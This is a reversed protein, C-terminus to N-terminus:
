SYGQADPTVRIGAYFVSNAMTKDGTIRKGEVGLAPTRLFFAHHKVAAIGGVSGKVFQAERIMPVARYIHYDKISDWMVELPFSYFNPNDYNLERSKPKFPYTVYMQGGIKLIPEPYNIALIPDGKEDKYQHLPALHNKVADKFYYLCNQEMESNQWVTSVFWVKLYVPNPDIEKFLKQLADEEQALDNTWTHDYGTSMKIGNSKISICTLRERERPTHPKNLLSQPLAEGSLQNGIATQRSEITLKNDLKVGPEWGATFTHPKQDARPVKFNLGM